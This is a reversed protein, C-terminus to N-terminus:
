WRKVSSIKIAVMSPQIPDSAPTSNMCSLRSAISTRLPATSRRVSSKPHMDFPTGVFSSAYCLSGSRVKALGLYGPAHKGEKDLLINDSKLDRHMVGRYHIYALGTAIDLALGARQMATFSFNLGGRKRYLWEMLSGGEMYETLLVIEGTEPVVSTQRHLTVCKSSALPSQLAPLRRPSHQARKMM